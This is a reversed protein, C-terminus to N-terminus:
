ILSWLVFGILDNVFISISMVGKRLNIIIYINNNNLGIVVAWLFRGLCVNYHLFMLTPIFNNNNNNSFFQWYNLFFTYTNKDRVITIM